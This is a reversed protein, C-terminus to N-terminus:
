KKKVFENGFILTNEKITEVDYICSILGVLKSEDRKKGGGSKSVLIIILILVILFIAGAAIWIIIQKQKQLKSGKNLGTLESSIENDMIPEDEM